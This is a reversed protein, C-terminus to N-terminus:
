LLPCNSQVLGSWNQLCTWSNADKTGHNVLFGIITYIVLDEVGGCRVCCDPECVQLPFLSSAVNVLYKPLFKPLFSLSNRGESVSSLM